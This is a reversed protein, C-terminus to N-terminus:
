KEIKIEELSQALPDYVGVGVTTVEKKKSQQSKKSTEDFLEKAVEEGGGNPRKRQLSSCRQATKLCSCSWFCSRELVGGRM